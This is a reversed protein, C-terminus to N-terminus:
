QTQAKTSAFNRIKRGLRNFKKLENEVAFICNKKQQSFFRRAQMKSRKM